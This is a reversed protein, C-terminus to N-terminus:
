RHRSVYHPLLDAPDHVQNAQEVFDGSGLPDQATAGSPTVIAYAPRELTVIRPTPPQCSMLCSVGVVVM